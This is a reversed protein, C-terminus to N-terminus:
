VFCCLQINRIKSNQNIGVGESFLFLLLFVGSKCPLLYFESTTVFHLM